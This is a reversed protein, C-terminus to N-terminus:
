LSHKSASRLDSYFKTIRDKDIDNIKPHCKERAYIIYNRLLNNDILEGHSFNEDL